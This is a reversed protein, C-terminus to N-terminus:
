YASIAFAYVKWVWSSALTFARFQIVNLFDVRAYHYELKIM